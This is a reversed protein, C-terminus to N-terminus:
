LSLEHQKLERRRSAHDPMTKEVLRWFAKSHNMEQLHCLEHVVVYDALHEPLFFLRYHFSLTRKSSCSGWRRSQNRISIKGHSFGYHENWEKVKRRLYALARARVAHYSAQPPSPDVVRALAQERVAAIRASARELLTTLMRLSLRRPIIVVVTGNRDVRWRISRSRHHRKVQYPIRISKHTIFSKTM